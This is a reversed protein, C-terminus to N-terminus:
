QEAQRAQEAERERLLALKETSSMKHPKAMEKLIKTQKKSQKKIAASHAATRDKASRFDVAGLTFVSTTKRFLGM